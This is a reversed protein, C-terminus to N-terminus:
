TEADQEEYAPDPAERAPEPEAPAPRYSPIMDAGFCPEQPKTPDVIPM